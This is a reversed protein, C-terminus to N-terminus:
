VPLLWTTWSLHNKAWAHGNTEMPELEPLSPLEDTSVERKRKRSDNGNETPVDPEPAEESAPVPDAVKANGNVLPISSPFGNSVPTMPQSSCPTTAASSLSSERSSVVKGRKGEASGHFDFRWVTADDFVAVLQHGSTRIWFWGNNLFPSRGSPSFSCQRCQATMKAHSLTLYPKSSHETIMDWVFIKGVQNGVAMYQSSHTLACGFDVAKGKSVPRLWVSRVLKSLQGSWLVGNSSNASFSIRRAEGLRTGLM